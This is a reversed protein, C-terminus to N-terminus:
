IVECHCVIVRSKQWLFHSAEQRVARCALPGPSGSQNRASPKVMRGYPEYREIPPDWEDPKHSGAPWGPTSSPRVELVQDRLIVRERDWSGFTVRTKGDPQHEIVVTAKDSTALKELVKERSDTRM